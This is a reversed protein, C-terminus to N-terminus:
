VRWGYGEPLALLDAIKDLQVSWDHLWRRCSLRHSTTLLPSIMADTFPLGLADVRAYIGAALAPMHLVRGGIEELRRRAKGGIRRGFRDVIGDSWLIFDEEEGAAMNKIVVYDADPGFQDIATLVSSISALLPTIALFIVVRRGASRHADVLDRSSLNRNITVLDSLSGGPLDVIILEEERDALNVLLDRERESRADFFLVGDCASQPDILNGDGDYQGLFTILQGVDGDGDAAVCRYPMPCDLHHRILEITARTITSKGIGGKHSPCMVTSRLRAKTSIPPKTHGPLTVIAPTALVADKTKDITM